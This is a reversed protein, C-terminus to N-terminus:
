KCSVYNQADQKVRAILHLV